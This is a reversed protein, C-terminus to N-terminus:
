EKMDKLLGIAFYGIIAIGFLICIWMFTKSQWFSEDSTNENDSSKSELNAITAMPIGVSFSKVFGSLDYSPKSFTSDLVVTYRENTKFDAIIYIPKQYLKIKSIQLPQNDQNDIEIRFENVFLDNCQFTTSANSNLYITAIEANYKEIRKKIKRTKQVLIAANRSFYTDNIIFSIEDIRQKELSKFTINTKKEKLNEAITYEFDNLLTKETENQKGVYFGVDLINVPLSNKDNFDIKLFAYKNSPVSLIKEVFTESSSHLDSLLQNAVLGFWEKGDNSGSVNYTKNLKTNSLLLVLEQNNKTKYNELIVATLSDKITNKSIIKLKEFRYTQMKEDQFVVYSVERKKGDFIRFYNLNDASASRIEPSVLVKHFGDQQINEFTATHNQSFGFSMCGLFFLLISNKMQNPKQNNM